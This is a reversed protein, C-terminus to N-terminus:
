LDAVKLLFLCYAAYAFLVWEFTPSSSGAQVCVYVNKLQSGRSMRLLDNLAIHLDALHRGGLSSGFM